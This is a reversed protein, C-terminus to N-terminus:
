YAKYNLSMKILRRRVIMLYWNFHSILILNLARVVQPVLAILRSLLNLQGYRAMHISCPRICVLCNRTSLFTAEPIELSIQHPSTSQYVCIVCHIEMCSFHHETQLFLKEAGSSRCFCLQREGLLLRADPWLPVEQFISKVTNRGEGNWPISFCQQLLATM